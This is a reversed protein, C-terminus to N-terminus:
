SGCEWFGAVVGVGFGSCGVSWLECWCLGCVVCVLFLVRVWLFFDFVFVVRSIFDM